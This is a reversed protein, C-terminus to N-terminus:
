LSKVGIETPNAVRKQDTIPDVKAAGDVSFEGSQVKSINCALHCQQSGFKDGSAKLM